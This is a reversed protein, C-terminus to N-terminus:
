VENGEDILEYGNGAYDRLYGIISWHLYEPLEAENDKRFVCRCGCVFGWDEEGNAKAWLQFEDREKNYVIKMKGAKEM